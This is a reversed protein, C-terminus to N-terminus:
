FLNSKTLTLMFHELQIESNFVASFEYAPVNIWLSNGVAAPDTINQVVHKDMKLKQREKNGTKLENVFNHLCGKFPPRSSPNQAGYIRPPDVGGNM